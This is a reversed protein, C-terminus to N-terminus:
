KHRLAVRLRLCEIDQEGIRPHSDGLSQSQLCLMENVAASRDLDALLNVPVFRADHFIEFCM